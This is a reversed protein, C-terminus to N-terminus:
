NSEKLIKLVTKEDSWPYKVQGMQITTEHVKGTIIVVDGRNAKSFALRLRKEIM